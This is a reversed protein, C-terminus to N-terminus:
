PKQSNGTLCNLRWGNQFYCVIIEKIEHAQVFLYHTYWIRVWYRM